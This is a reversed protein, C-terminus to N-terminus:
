TATVRSVYLANLNASGLGAVAKSMEDALWAADFPNLALRVGGIAVRVIGSELDGDVALLTREYRDHKTKAM